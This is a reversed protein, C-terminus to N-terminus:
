MCLDPGIRKKVELMKAMAPRIEACVGGFVGGFGAGAVEVRGGVAGVLAEACGTEGLVGRGAVTGRVGAWSCGFCAWTVRALPVRETM